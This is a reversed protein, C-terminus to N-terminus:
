PLVDPRRAWVARNGPWPVAPRDVEGDLLVLDPDDTRGGIIWVQDQQIGGTIRDLCELGVSVGPIHEDIMEMAGLGIPSALSSVGSRRAITAASSELAELVGDATLIASDRAAAGIEGCLAVLARRMAMDRVISAFHEASSTPPAWDVLDALYRLGGMEQFAVDGRFQEMLIIPEALRGKDIYEAMASFLRAHLGEHFHEATVQGSVLGLAANDFLICGLLAQEANINSPERTEHGGEMM